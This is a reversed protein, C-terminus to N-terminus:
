GDVKGIIQAGEAYIDTFCLMKYDIREALEIKRYATKAEQEEEECQCRSTM